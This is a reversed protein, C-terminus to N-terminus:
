EKKKKIVFSFCDLFFFLGLVEAEKWNIKVKVKINKLIEKKVKRGNKVAASINKLTKDEICSLKLSLFFNSIIWRASPSFCRVLKVIIWYIDRWKFARVSNYAFFHFHFSVKFNLCIERGSIHLFELEMRFFRTFVFLRFRRYFVM